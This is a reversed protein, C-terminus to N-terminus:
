LELEGELTGDIETTGESMGEFTGESMGSKRVTNSPNSVFLSPLSEFSSYVAYKTFSTGPNVGSSIHAM